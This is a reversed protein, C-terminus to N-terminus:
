RGQVALRRSAVVTEQSEEWKNSGLKEFVLTPVRDKGM